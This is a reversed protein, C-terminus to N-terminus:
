SRRTGEGRQLFDTFDPVSEDPLDQDLYEPEQLGSPGPQSNTGVLSSLSAHRHLLQRTFESCIFINDLLRGGDGREPGSARRHRSSSQM